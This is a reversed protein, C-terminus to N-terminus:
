PVYSKTWVVVVACNSSGRFQPPAEAPNSYVEIGGVRRITLLDDIGGLGDRIQMGDLYASPTCNSRGSIRPRTPNATDFGNGRLSPATTLASAVSQAGRAEIENADLYYGNGTARRKVFGSRDPKATVNVGSLTTVKNGINITVPTERNPRLDASARVPAYGIAIVDVTRTGTPLGAVRFAGISDSTAFADTDQVSVRAGSVPKGDGSIVRGTLRATGTRALTARPAAGAGVTSDATRMAILLDRHALPVNPTFVIEIEGSMGQKGLTEGAGARAQVLVPADTPIGCAVYRGDSGFPALAQTQVKRVGGNDIRMQAFRVVVSGSAVPTGEEASSVRGIIAGTSDARGGCLTAVFTRGSPLALDVRQFRIARDVDITRNVADLGLSDLRPHQFGILYKGPAVTDIRFRGISDSTVMRGALWPTASPVLQISAGVLPTGSLSDRVFGSISTQAHLVVPTLAAIFWVMQRALHRVRGM